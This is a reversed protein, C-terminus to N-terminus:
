CMVRPTRGAPTGASALARRIDAARWYTVGGDKFPAPMLGAEVRRRITKESVGFLATVLNTRVRADDPADRFAKLDPVPLKLM